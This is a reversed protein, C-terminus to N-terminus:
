STPSLRTRFRELTSQIKSKYTEHNNPYKGNYHYHFNAAAVLWINEEPKGKIRLERLYEKKILYAAVEIAFCPDNMLREPTVSTIGEAHFDEIRVDNICSVGYDKTGNSNVLYGNVPGNENRLVALLIWEPISYKSASKTACEMYPTLKKLETNYIAIRNKGAVADVSYGSVFVLLIMFLNKVTFRGRANAFDINMAM